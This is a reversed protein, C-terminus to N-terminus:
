GAMMAAARAAGIEAATEEALRDVVANLAGRRTAESASGRAERYVRMQRDSSTGTAAITRAAEVEAACGLADADLAIDALVAELCEAFPVAREGEEDIVEAGVGDAQARWLNEAAIARSAGTLEAHLDPRRDVLRM